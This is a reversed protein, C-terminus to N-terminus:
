YNFITEVLDNGAPNQKVVLVVTDVALDVMDGDGNLDLGVAPEDVPLLGQQFHGDIASDDIDTVSSFTMGYSPDYYTGGIKAMQHNNFLSAPNATGQGPIGTQDSVEKFRFDYTNGSILPTDPINLYPFGALGSTGSGTFSWDKVLFGTSSVGPSSRLLVYDGGQDIGQVKLMDLFLKTWSGCQGDGGALLGATTTTTCTWSAYYTMQTGDVRAVSRDTFESFIDTTAAAASTDGDGNKCGLHVLTHYVTTVPDGLTVYCQNDSTGAPFWSSGGNISVEWKVVLPEGKQIDNDFAGSATTKPMTVTDGSASAATEPIDLGAQGDGRVKFSVGPDPDPMVKFRSQANYHTNRTFAVPHKKEGAGPSAVGDLDDDTWHPAAYTESGDDKTIVHANDLYSVEKLKIEYITLNRMHEPGQDGVILVYHDPPLASPAHSTHNRSVWPGTSGDTYHIRLQYEFHLPTTDQKNFIAEEDPADRPPSDVQGEVFDVTKDPDAWLIDVWSDVTSGGNQGGSIIYGAAGNCPDMDIYGTGTWNVYTIPDAPFTVENGSLIASEIANRTVASHTNPPLPLSNWRKYVTIGADAALQLIKMTSVAEQGYDDEFLRNENLSGEAGGLLLIDMSEGGCGPQLEDVKWAGTVSRDADVTLGRWEWSTPNGFIDTFVQIDDKVIADAVDETVYSHMLAGLEDGAAIGRQLYDMANAFRQQAIFGETDAPDPPALLPNSTGSIALGIAQLEGAVITNFIAPVVNSPLGSGNVPALFHMDSNHTRGAGIGAAGTAVTQGGVKLVPRINILNPPTYLLGNFGDITAQDSPTAGEYSLTIRRGAVEPLNVTHDILNTGGDYLHFRIQYRRDAPLESFSADRSRVTYPLSAPLIGLNEAVVDHSRRVDDLTLGPFNVALHDAIQQQLLEVPTEPRPLTVLPDTPDWYADVFAQADLGMDAPIDVGPKVTSLKFAPDLPVWAADGFGRPVYAEVWIRHARIAVVSTCSGCGFSEVEGACTADWQTTCCFSDLACVCAEISPESCGPTGNGFCCDNSPDGGLISVGEMGSTTLISGAVEGSDVRLWSTARDVTLEVDGEAYRAPIGSGRLMAILLSALDYDNGSRQRLTEVSGKRSGYYPQFDLENRVFEYIAEVSGLETAKDIIEQTIRVDITPDLDAPVPATLAAEAAVDVVPADPDLPSTPAPLAERVQWSQPVPLPAAPLFPKGRPVPPRRSNGRGPHPRQSGAVVLSVALAALAAMTFWTREKM